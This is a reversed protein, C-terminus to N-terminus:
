RLFVRERRSFGYGHSHIPLWLTQGRYLQLVELSNVSMTLSVDKNYRASLEGPLGWSCTHVVRRRAIEGSGLRLPVGQCSGELLTEM